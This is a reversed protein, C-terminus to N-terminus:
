PEWGEAAETMSVALSGVRGGPLPPEPSQVVLRFMDARLVATTLAVPRNHGPDDFRVTVMMAPQGAALRLSRAV